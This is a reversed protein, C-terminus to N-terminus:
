QQLWHLVPSVVLAARQVNKWVLRGVALALATLTLYALLIRAGDGPELMRFNGLYFHVVPLTAVVFPHLPWYGPQQRKM